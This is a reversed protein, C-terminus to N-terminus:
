SLKEEARGIRSITDAEARGKELAEAKFGSIPAHPANAGTLCNMCVTGELDREMHRQRLKQMIENNWSVALPEGAAYDAYTLDHEYDVCCASLFGECTLHIRNWLMACPKIRGKPTLQPVPSINRILEGTRGGQSAAPVYAIDELYPAFLEKHREIESETLRTHVFSGLMQLAIGEATKWAHIEAINQVVKEFDDRGHTLRYSERDAANVSFKISDLGARVCAAVRDRSALSGNTTMYVRRVGAEKALAVYNEIDKVVFPEGTSYLGAEELGLGVAERMFRAFVEKDLVGPRRRMFPNHCFLCAHNCANTVEVLANKPFPAGARDCEARFRKARESFYKM